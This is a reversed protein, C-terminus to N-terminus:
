YQKLMAEDRKSLVHELLKSMYEQKVNTQRKNTQKNEDELTPSRVKGVTPM